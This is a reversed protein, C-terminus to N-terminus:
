ASPRVSARASTIERQGAAESHWPGAIAIDKEIGEDGVDFTALVGMTEVYSHRAAHRLWPCNTPSFIFIISNYLM